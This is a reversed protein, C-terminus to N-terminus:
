ASDPWVSGLTSQTVGNWVLVPQLTLTFIPLVDSSITCNIRVPSYSPTDADPSAVNRRM